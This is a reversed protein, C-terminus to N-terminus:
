KLLPTLDEVKKRLDDLTGENTIIHTAVKRRKEDDIQSALIKDAMEPSLGDRQILLQRRREPPADVVILGRFDRYRGTEVLLAAEYVVPKGACSAIRRLSEDRILPHLIAELDARSKPDSFVLERLPARDATGFRKVIAEHALGGPRSLDRSIQDADIVTLGAQSLLGAM